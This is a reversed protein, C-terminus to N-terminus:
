FALVAEKMIVFDPTEYNSFKEM